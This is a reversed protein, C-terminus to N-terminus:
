TIAKRSAGRNTRSLRSSFDVVGSTAPATVTVAPIARSTYATDLAGTWPQPDPQTIVRRATEAASMTANTTISDRAFSGRSGNEIKRIRVTAPAFTVANM